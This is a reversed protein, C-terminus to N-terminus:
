PPPLLDPLQRTPWVHQRVRQWGHAARTTLTLRPASRGHRRWWGWTLTGIALAAAGAWAAAHTPQASATTTSASPAPATPPAFPDPRAQAPAVTLNLGSVRSIRVRRQQLDWWRLEVPPLETQGSALLQYSARHHLAEGPRPKALSQDVRVRLRPNEPGFEPAPLLLSHSDTDIWVDRELVDGVQWRSGASPDPLWRQRLELRRAAVFPQLSEAGPPLQVQLRLPHGPRLRQVQGNGGGPRVELDQALDIRLEGAQLPQVRYRRVLGTWRLGQWEEFRAEPSGGVAEMLAGESALTAPFEVPAQFWTPVWVELRLVLTQGVEIAQRSNRDLGWRLRAAPTSVDQARGPAPWLGCTLGSSLTSLTTLGLRLGTRRNLTIGLASAAAAKSQVPIPKRTPTPHASM